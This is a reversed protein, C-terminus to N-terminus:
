PLDRFLDDLAPDSKADRYEKGRRRRRALGRVLAALALELAWRLVAWAATM